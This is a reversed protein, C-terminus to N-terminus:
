PEIAVIHRNVVICAALVGLLASLLLLALVSPISLGALAYQAHYSAALAHAPAQLAWILLTVVIWAGLGGSIGYFFGSYLFPRRVFSDTAGVLKFVVIEQRSNQIALRLTNTIVLFVASCLLLVLVLVGRQLLTIINNLRNLWQLDLQGSVVGPLQQLNDVMSALVQPSYLNNDPYVELVPPLPNTPLQTLLESFGEYQALDRMGQQPSIYNVYAVEPRSRVQSILKDIQAQKSDLQLFLTIQTGHQWDQSVFKANALVVFLCVPLSLAIAIVAVTMGSAVPTRWLRGVSFLAAQMHASFLQSLSYKRAKIQVRAQTKASAAM